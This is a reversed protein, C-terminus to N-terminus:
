GDKLDEAYKLIDEWLDRRMWGGGNVWVLDQDAEAVAQEWWPPTPGYSPQLPANCIEQFTERLTKQEAQM